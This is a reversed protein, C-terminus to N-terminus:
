DRRAIVIDRTIGQDVWHSFGEAPVIRLGAKEVLAIAEERPAVHTNWSFGLTGGPMILQVWGPLATELLEQPGRAIGKPGRSGHVIGYPLDAVVVEASHKKLLSRALSTDAEFVTLQQTEGAHHAAKDPAMTVDFRRGLKKGERRLPTMEANHKLRKRKLYTKMFASYAELDQQDREIGIADWGYMLAQNLTTGRGCVPDLVTLKRELMRDAFASALVTVNLLLKTFHENTKGSYKQISILDDDYRDLPQGAIPRLLDGEVREFLAFASSVNALYALDREGLPGDAVSFGLYTRGALEIPAVPGLRGDLAGVSFAALEAAGLAAAGATYVRNSSPALLLAYEM